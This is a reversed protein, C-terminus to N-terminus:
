LELTPLEKPSDLRKQPPKQFSDIVEGSPMLAEISLHTKQLTIKLLHKQPSTKLLYPQPTPQRPKVGWCGDGIYTIGQPNPQNQLLPLTRKYAHDHHELCLDVQANEFLPVWTKRIASSLPNLPDRVSPYAPVHYTCLIYLPRPQTHENLANKLWLTQEGEIPTTHGSDLLIIQVTDGIKLGFYPPQQFLADFGPAPNEKNPSKHLFGHRTEHNGICTIVPLLRGDPTPFEHLTQLWQEWRWFEKPNGDDYALDGGLLLFHPNLKTILRQTEAMEKKSEMTDGGAVITLPEELHSPLTKFHHTKGEIKIEYSTDPSLNKLTTQHITKPLEDVTKPQSEKKEWEREPNQKKRWLFPLPAKELSLWTICATTCPDEKWTLLPGAERCHGRTPTIISLTLALLLLAHPCSSRALM